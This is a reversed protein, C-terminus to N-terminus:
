NVTVRLIMMKLAISSNMIVDEESASLSEHGADGTVLIDPETEGDEETNKSSEEANEEAAAELADGNGSLHYSLGTMRHPVDGAREDEGEEGEEEVEEDNAPEQQHPAEQEGGSRFLKMHDITTLILVAGVRDSSCWVLCM